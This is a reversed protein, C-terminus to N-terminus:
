AWRRVWPLEEAAEVGVERAEVLGSVWAEEAWVAALTMGPVTEV